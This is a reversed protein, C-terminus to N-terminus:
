FRTNPIAINSLYCLRARYSLECRHMHDHQIYTTKLNGLFMNFLRCNVCPNATKTCIVNSVLACLLQGIFELSLLNYAFAFFNDSGAQPTNGSSNGSGAQPTPAAEATAQMTSGGRGRRNSRKRRWKATAPPAEEAVGADGGPATVDAGLPYLLQLVYSDTIM